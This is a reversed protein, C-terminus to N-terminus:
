EASTSTATAPTNPKGRSLIPKFPCFKAIHGPRKCYFCLGDNYQTANQATNQTYMDTRQGFNQSFGRFFARPNFGGRSAGRSYPKNFHTRKRSARIVASRLKTADEGNDALPDDLYEQVTDWGHRDAIKLIKNRQNITAIESKIVSEIDEKNESKLLLEIKQLAAIRDSNFNFQIKTGEQKFEFKSPQCAQTDVNSGNKPITSVNTSASSETGKRLEGLIEAKQRELAKNLSSNFLSVADATSMDTENMNEQLMEEELRDTEM